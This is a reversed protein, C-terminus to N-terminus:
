EEAVLSRFNELIRAKADAINTGWLEALGVEARAVDWPMAVRGDIQVFPGDSETIIRESPMAGILARGKDSTTMAPGVSFWCGLTVARRLDRLSGSYWHLVVKGAMPNAEVLDLVDPVARRSHVSLVRGVADACSKLIEEFVARQIALSDRFPPTADIGVEGVYRSSALLSKLLPLEARREAALQPHLGVATRIRARGEALASTGSWASPANTLSLVYVGREVCEQAVQLPNPYLDLHCHFDIV